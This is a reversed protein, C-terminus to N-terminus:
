EKFRANGLLAEICEHKDYFTKQIGNSLDEVLYKWLNCENKLSIVKFNNHTFNLKSFDGEILELYDFLYCMVSFRKEKTVTKDSCLKFLFMAAKQITNKYDKRTTPKGNNNENRKIFIKYLFADFYKKVFKGTSNKKSYFAKYLYRHPIKRYLFKIFVSEPKLHPNESLIETIVFCVVGGVFAFLVAICIVCLAFKLYM